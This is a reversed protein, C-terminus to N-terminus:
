VYQLSFFKPDFRTISYTMKKDSKHLELFSTTKLTVM